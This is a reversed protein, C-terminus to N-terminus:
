YEHQETELRPHIIPYAVMRVPGLLGSPLPQRLHGERAAEATNRVSITIENLAGRLIRGSADFRYPAAPRTGCHHGNIWVTAMDRMRALEVFCRCNDWETPLKVWQTYTVAGSYFPLGQEHWSGIDLEPPIDATIARESTLTFDGTLRAVSPAQLIRAPSLPQTQRLQRSSPHRPRFDVLCALTNTGSVAQGLDYWQGDQDSGPAAAPYPAPCPRLPEDNFYLEHPAEIPEFQLYLSRPTENVEFTILFTVIGSTEGQRLRGGTGTAQVIRHWEELPQWREGGFRFRPAPMHRGRQWKWENLLLMNPGNRAAQWSDPLLIPEPVLVADATGRQLTGDGHRVAFRPVGNETVYGSAVTGDFSEVTYTARELHHAQAAAGERPLRTWILQAEAPVMELSISIGGGEEEPYAMWVPMQKIEGTWANLLHPVGEAAPRLQLNVRQTEGAANVVFFIDGGPRWLDEIANEEEEPPQPAPNPFVDDKFAAEKGTVAEESDLVRHTYIIQRAQTELEPPYCEKLLRRALLQANEPDSNLRPQYCSIRGGAENERTVPYGVTQPVEGGPTEVHAYADYLASLTVMTSKSIHEELAPDRGHESWRPLLGLCVVKGGAAVFEEVKRWTAWSMATVSPLVLLSFLHRATGCEIIADHCNGGLFDEEPLLLYDYHLEDLLGATANLDEEVWRTLRHGGPNYHAWVARVPWFLAVRAGPKGQALTYSCRAIYDAFTKWEAWYPQHWESTLANSEPKVLSLLGQGTVFSNIGNQLLRHLSFIRDQLTISWGCERWVEALARQKGTLAAVSACLRAHLSSEADPAAHRGSAAAVGPRPLARLAPVLDGGGSVIDNLRDSSQLAGSYGLRSSDAWAGLAKWFSQDVLSTVLQWYDQRLRAAGDGINAILAPLWEVLDYGYRSTFEKQLLESWPFREAAESGARLSPESTFFGPITSGIYNRLMLRYHAHTGEIFYRMTDPNLLDVYADASLVFYIIRADTDFKQLLKGAKKLPIQSLTIAEDFNPEPDAGRLPAAVALLLQGPLEPEQWREFEAHPMDEMFYYLSRARVEDHEHHISGGGTGSHAGTDDGLWLRLERSQAGEVCHRVRQLWADSLYTPISQRHPQLIFEHVGQAQLADLAQRVIDDTAEGNWIWRLLPAFTPPPSAFDHM